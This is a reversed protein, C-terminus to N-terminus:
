QSTEKEQKRCQKKEQRKKMTKLTKEVDGKFIALLKMNQRKHVFGEKELIQLSSKM